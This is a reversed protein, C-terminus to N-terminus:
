QEVDDAVVFGVGSARLWDELLDLMRTMQCFLLIRHGRERLKPLLKALLQM